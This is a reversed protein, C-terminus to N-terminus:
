GQKKGGKRTSKDAKTMSTMVDFLKAAAVECTENLSENVTVKKPIQATGLAAATAPTSPSASKLIGAIAEIATSKQKEEELMQKKVATVVSARFKDKEITNKSLTYPKSPSGKQKKNKAQRIQRLEDQEEKSLKKYEEAKYYRIDVGTKPGRSIKLGASSIEAEATRKGPRTKVPDVPVLLAVSREFNERLGGPRDDLKISAIAAKVNADAVEINDILYGVRSRENPIQLTINEACNQLNVFMQRHLSLYRELSMGSGGVFKRNLLFDNALRAEKDWHATGAHQEKLALFAARGNKTRKFPSISSAYKTGRTAEEIDDFVSANDDRFLAHTHSLRAIMEGRVSGHDISHPQGTAIAPAAAPVTADERIVYSLPANRVGIKHLAYSEYAEIWKVIGVTKTIKPLESDDDKARLLAKWQVEFNKLTTNWEIIAASLPRGTALYYEVAVAAVQIRHLSKGSIHFAEQEVLAGTADTIKPPRRCNDIIQKWTDDETFEALDEVNVIGELQLQNRTRAELGMQGADTFFATTQAATLVM